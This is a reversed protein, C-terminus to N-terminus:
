HGRQADGGNPAFGNGIETVPTPMRHLSDDGTSFNEEGSASVSKQYAHTVGEKNWREKERIKDSGRTRSYQRWPKLLGSAKRNVREAALANRAKM